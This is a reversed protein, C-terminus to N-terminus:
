VDDLPKTKVIGDQLKVISEIKMRADKLKEECYDKLETGRSYDQMSSQLDVTGGELKRVISELEKLADEFPMGELPKAPKTM